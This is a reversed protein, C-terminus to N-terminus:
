SNNKSRENKLDKIIKKFGKKAGPKIWRVQKVRDDKPIPKLAFQDEWKSKTM